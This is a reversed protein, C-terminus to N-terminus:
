AKNNEQKITEAIEFFTKIIKAERREYLCAVHATTFIEADTIEILQLNPHPSFEIDSVFSMGLGQEVASWVAERSGMELVPDITVAKEELASEFALRTTSGKERLIFKEGELEKIKIKKRKGFPHAKSVFVAVPHRSFPVAYIMPNEAVHALVAVDVTYDLVREVMKMSNGMNVSLKIQPYLKHFRALMPTAHYPGVAGLKLNGALLGNYSSLLEKAEDELSFIRQSIKFLAEGCDTLQVVRGKRHFLNVGYTDELAKIQTSITPQGVNIANAAATFGGKSAVAHFSRLHSYIM